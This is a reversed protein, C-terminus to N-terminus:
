FFNAFGGLNKKQLEMVKSLTEKFDRIIPFIKKSFTRLGLFFKKIKPSKRSEAFNLNEFV